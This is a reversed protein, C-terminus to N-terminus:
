VYHEAYGIRDVATRCSWPTARTAEYVADRVVGRDWDHWCIMTHDDAISLALQTDSFVSRFDHAADILIMDPATIGFITQLMGKSHAHSIDMELLLLKKALIEDALNSRCIKPAALPSWKEYAEMESAAGRWHDVCFVVGQTALAMAKASRGLWTGFELILRRTSAQQYLWTLEGTSMWGEIPEVVELMEAVTM